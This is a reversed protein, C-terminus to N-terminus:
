PVRISSGRVILDAQLATDEVGNSKATLRALVQRAATTGIAYAPRSVVSVAPRLLSLWPADDFVVVGIDAGLRLGREAIARLAGEALEHRAVLLADPPAPDSLLATLMVYPDSPGGDARCVVVQGDDARGAARHARHFGALRGTDTHCAPEIVCALRQYGQSILHVAAREVAARSDVLVRDHTECAGDLTVVPTTPGTLDDIQTATPAPCMVVGAFCEQRAVELYHREKDPDDDTNCLVVSYGAARATDEFGRSISAYFPHTVDPVILSLTATTKRRLNRAPGNPQYGLEAAARRVREALEPDVSSKGNLARSVTATSVQAKVAVDDITPM